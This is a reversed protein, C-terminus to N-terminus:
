KLGKNAERIECDELIEADSWTLRRLAYELHQEALRIHNGMIERERAILEDADMIPGDWTEKHLKEKLCSGTTINLQIYQARLQSQAARQISLKVHLLNQEKQYETLTNYIETKM